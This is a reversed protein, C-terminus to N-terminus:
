DRVGLQSPLPGLPVISSTCAGHEALPQAKAAQVQASQLTVHPALAFLAQRAWETIPPRGAREETTTTPPQCRSFIGIMELGESV